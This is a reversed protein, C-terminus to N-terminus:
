FNDEWYKLNQRIKKLIPNTNKLQICMFKQWEKLWDELCHQVNTITFITALINNCCNYFTAAASNPMGDFAASTFDQVIALGGCEKIAELGKTFNKGTGSLIIEVVKEKKEQLHNM